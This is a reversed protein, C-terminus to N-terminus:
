DSGANAAAPHERKQRWRPMQEPTVSAWLGRHEKRSQKEFAAFERKYPHEFRSDAYGYGDEILMADFDRGGRELFIYALLRGYRDRTRTPWLVIQVDRNELTKVAFDRAEPGYFMDTEGKNHAIEPTDVGWLRIRTKPKNGDPADIDVTDGDVVHIVRFVHDHYRSMDDSQIAAASPTASRQTRDIIAMAGAGVLICIAPLLRRWRPPM